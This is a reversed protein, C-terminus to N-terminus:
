VSKILDTVFADPKGEIVVHAFRTLIALINDKAIHFEKRESPTEFVIEIHDNDDASFAWPGITITSFSSSGSATAWGGGTGTSILFNGDTTYTDGTSTLLDGSSITLNNPFLVGSSDGTSTGSGFINAVNSSGSNTITPDLYGTGGNDEWKNIDYDDKNNAM